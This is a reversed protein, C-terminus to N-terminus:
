DAALGVPSQLERIASAPALPVPVTVEAGVPVPLTPPEDDPDDDECLPLPLAAGLSPLVATKPVSAAIAAYTPRANTLPIHIIKKYYMSVQQQM